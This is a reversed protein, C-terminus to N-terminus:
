NVPVVLRVALDDDSNLARVWDARESRKAQGLIIRCRCDHTQVAACMVFYQYFADIWPEFATHKTDFQRGIGISPNRNRCRGQGAV